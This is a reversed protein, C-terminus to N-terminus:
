EDWLGEEFNFRSFGSDYQPPDLQQIHIRVPATPKEEPQESIYQDKCFSDRHSWTVDHTTLVKTMKTDYIYLIYGDRKIRCTKETYWYPVGFRRGEYHVFGDFSIKREPCLYYSLEITEDLVSAYKMCVNSHKENPICDVARHYIGNQANCWRVAEYNLDTIEHFIRGPLFNDKVFRVLREVAGKTFPHRPKCLKTEFCLNGM